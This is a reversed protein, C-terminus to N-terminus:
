DGTVLYRRDVFRHCTPCGYEVVAVQAHPAPLDADCEVAPEGCRACRPPRWADRLWAIASAGLAAALAAVVLDGPSM